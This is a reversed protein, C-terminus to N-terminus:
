SVLSNTVLTTLLSVVVPIIIHVLVKGALEEHYSYGKTTLEFSFRSLDMNKDYDHIYGKIQLGRLAEDIQKPTYRPFQSPTVFIRIENTYHNVGALIDREIRLLM